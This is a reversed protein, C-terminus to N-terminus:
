DFLQVFELITKSLVAWKTEKVVKGLYTFDVDEFQVTTDKNVEAKGILELLKIRTLMDSVSYGGQVPSNIATKLLDITTIELDQERGGITLKETVNKLEITKM